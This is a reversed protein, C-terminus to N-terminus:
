AGGLFGPPRRAGRARRARAAVVECAAPRRRSACGERRAAQVGAQGWRCQSTDALAGDQPKFQLEVTSPCRVILTSARVVGTRQNRSLCLLSCSHDKAMGAWGPDSSTTNVFQWPGPRAQPARRLMRHTHTRAPTSRVFLARPPRACLRGHTRAHLTGLADRTFSLHCPPAQLLVAGYEIPAPDAAEDDDSDFDDEDDERGDATRSAFATQIM